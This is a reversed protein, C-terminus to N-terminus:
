ARPVKLKQGTHLSKPDRIGNLSKLVAVANAIASSTKADMQDRAISALTEGARVVYDRTSPKASPKKATVKVIDLSGPEGLTVTLWLRVRHRGDWIADGEALDTLVWDRDGHPVMGGVRITPPPTGRPSGAPPRGMAYLAALETDITRRDAFGDLLLPIELTRTPTSGWEMGNERGPREVDRWGGVGGKLTASGRGLRCRLTIAPRTTVFVCEGAGVRPVGGSPLQLGVRNSSGAAVGHGQEFVAVPTL